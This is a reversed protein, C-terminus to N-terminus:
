PPLCVSKMLFLNDFLPPMLLLVIVLSNSLNIFLPVANSIVLFHGVSQCHRTNYSSSYFTLYSAFYKSFSTHLFMCVFTATKFVSHHGASLWHLKKLVPTIGTYRSTNSVIRAASNQICQLKHLNFQSLSRFISNCYDLQSIALANAVFVFLMMLLFSGLMDLIVSNYLVVKPSM